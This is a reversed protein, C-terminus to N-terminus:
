RYQRDLIKRVEKVLNIPVFPKSLFNMDSELIGKKDITEKTYGSIYLVKVKPMFEKVHEVLEAGGMSPMIVDTIILDIQKGMEKCKMYAEGGNQALIVKYGYMKLVRGALNRVGEEDEVIMITEGGELVKSTKEVKKLPKELADHKPLFIRFTSGAGEASAAEIHGGSQKIIGYVTSLGLGTGKGEEKTTFFPDFIQELIERPMGCGSDAIDIRIYPGPIVEPYRTRYREDLNINKCAITLSGGNEMADRANVALNIVVQEIQGPDAKSLWINDEKQFKLEIDEGILRKLMKQLNGIIKNLDIVEPQLTQKRSFALLQRTLEAARVASKAVEDLDEYLPDHKDLSLLAMETYGSIVTLINNFDHAVGGALRGVAEMKQAQRLQDELQKRESIDRLIGLIAKGGKYDIESVSAEVEIETGNKSIATFEYQPPPTENRERMKLRSQILAVSSPAVMQLFSFSSDMIEAEAYGSVEIFRRNVLEFKNNFLVYIADNSQEFLGRFRNEAEVKETIDEITGEYYLTTGASDRIAKASERVYLLSGDKKLIGYEYGRVEGEREIEEIFVSRHNEPAFGYESINRKKLDNLSDYGLMKVLTPNALVIRGEPTTRFIGITSNEYLSRFREESAKLEMEYRLREKLLRQKEYIERITVLLQDIKVPKVIYNAAGLKMSEVANEISGYGTIMVISINPFADKLEPILEHGCSDPLKVDILAVDYATEKIKERAQKKTLVFDSKCGNEELIVSLSDCINQDDDVILVKLNSDM